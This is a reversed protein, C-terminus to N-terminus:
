IIWGGQELLAVQLQTDLVMDLCSRLIESNPSDVVDRSLMHWHETIKVPFFHKRINLHFRRHEVKCGNGRTRNSPMVSFLRTEDEKSGGKLYEYVDIFDGSLRRKKQSFQGLRRMKEEYTLQMHRKTMWTGKTPSEGLIDMCRKYQPDWFQVCSELHSRV